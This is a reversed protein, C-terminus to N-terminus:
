DIVVDKKKGNKKRPYERIRFVFDLNVAEEGGDKRVLVLAGNTVETVTGDLQQSNFTYIICEKGIFKQALEKMQGAEKSFKKKILMVIAMEEDRKMIFIIILLCIIPLFYTFNM